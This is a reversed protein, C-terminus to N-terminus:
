VAGATSWALLLQGGYYLPLGVAPNEFGPRVFRERAVALDSLYFGLAGALIRGDGSAATAGAAVVVMGTIAVGYARVPWRLGPPVHPALWRLVAGAAPLTLLLAALAAKAHLGRLPFAAAYALHAALFSALGAVFPGRAGQPILLVDGIWSLALGALLIQGYSSHAAGSALAAAIMGCSAAVKAVAAATGRGARLALLLAAVSFATGLAAIAM